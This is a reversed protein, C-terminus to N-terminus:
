EVLDQQNSTADTQEAVMAVLDNARDLITQAQPDTIGANNIIQTKTFTLITPAVAGARDLEYTSAFFRLFRRFGQIQTQDVWTFSGATNGDLIHQEFDEVERKILQRSWDHANSAAIAAAVDSFRSRSRRWERGKGDVALFSALVTSGSQQVSELQRSVIPM